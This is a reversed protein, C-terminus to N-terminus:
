GTKQVFLLVLFLNQLRSDIKPPLCTLAAHVAGLKHVGARSGLPNGTEFDDCYLMYPFVMRDANSDSHDEDKIDRWFQGDIFDEFSKSERSLNVYELATQLVDPM